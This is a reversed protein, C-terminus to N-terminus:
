QRSREKLHSVYSHVSDQRNNFKSVREHEANSNEMIEDNWREQTLYTLPNPIFRLEKGKFVTENQITLANIIEQSKSELGQSIWKQLCPKRGIKKFYLEWFQEFAPQEIAKLRNRKNKKEIDITMPVNHVQDDADSANLLTCPTCKINKDLADNADSMNFYDGLVYNNLKWVRTRKILLIKELKVLHYVLTRKCIRCEQALVNQKAFCIGNPKMDIYDAITRLILADVSSLNFSLSDKNRLFKAIRYHASKNEPM